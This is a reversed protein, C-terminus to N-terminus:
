VIGNAGNDQRTTPRNASAFVTMMQACGQIKGLYGRGYVQGWVSFSCSLSLEAPSEWPPAYCVVHFFTRALPLAPLACSLV